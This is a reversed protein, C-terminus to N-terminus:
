RFKLDPGNKGANWNGSVCDITASIQLTASQAVGTALLAM